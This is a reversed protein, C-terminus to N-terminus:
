VGRPMIFRNTLIIEDEDFGLANHGIRQCNLTLRIAHMNETMINKNVPSIVCIRVRDRVYLYAPIQEHHM